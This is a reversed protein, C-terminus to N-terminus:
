LESCYSYPPRGCIYKKNERQEELNIKDDNFPTEKNYVYLVDRIHSIRDFGAMEIAPFMIAVDWASKFYNGDVNRFDIDDIRKWLKCKMTRLAAAKWYSKRIGKDFDVKRYPLSNNPANDTPFGVWSGYTVLLDPNANYYSEVVSLSKDNYLWDDADIFIIIDDDNPNLVEIAKIINPIAWLIEDNLTVGLKDSIYERAKEYTSDGVPDLIVQAKWKIDKQNVISSLCRDIYSEAPGGIVVIKFNQM